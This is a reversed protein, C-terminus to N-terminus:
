QHSSLRWTAADVIVSDFAVETGRVQPHGFHYRYDTALPDYRNLFLSDVRASSVTYRMAYVANTSDRRALGWYLIMADATVIPSSFYPHFFPLLESLKRQSSPTWLVYETPFSEFWPPETTHVPTTDTRVELFVLSDKGVAAVGFTLDVTDVAVSGRRLVGRAGEELMSGWSTTDTISYGTPLSDRAVSSPDVTYVQASAPTSDRRYQTSDSVVPQFQPESKTCGTIPFAVTAATFAVWWVSVCQTPVLQLTARTKRM